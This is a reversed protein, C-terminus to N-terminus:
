GKLKEKSFLCSPGQQRHNTTLTKTAITEKRNTGERVVECETLEKRPKPKTYIETEMVM